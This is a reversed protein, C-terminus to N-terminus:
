KKIKHEAIAQRVRNVSATPNAYMEVGTAYDYTEVEINHKTIYDTIIYDASLLAWAAKERRKLAQEIYLPIKM